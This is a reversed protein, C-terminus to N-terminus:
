VCVWGLACSYCTWDGLVWARWGWLSPAAASRRSDQAAGLLRRPHATDKSKAQEGCMDNVSPKRSVPGRPSGYLVSANMSFSPLSFPPFSLLSRLSVCVSAGTRRSLRWKRWPRLALQARGTRSFCSGRKM